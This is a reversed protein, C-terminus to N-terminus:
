RTPACSRPPGSWSPRVEARDPRGLIGRLGVARHTVPDFGQAPFPSRGGPDHGLAVADAVVLRDPDATPLHAAVEPHAAAMRRLVASPVKPRHVPELLIQVSDPMGSIKADAARIDLLIGGMVWGGPATRPQTRSRM